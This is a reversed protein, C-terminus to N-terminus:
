QVNDTKRRSLRRNFTCKRVSEGSRRAGSRAFSQSWIPFWNASPQPLLSSDTRGATVVTRVWFTTSGAAIIGVVVAVLPPEMIADM